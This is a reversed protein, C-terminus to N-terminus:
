AFDQAMMEPLPVTSLPLGFRRNLATSITLGRVLDEPEATETHTTFPYAHVALNGDRIAQELKQRREPPQGEWLIQKMPWGSVTWVFQREKPQNRNKEIAELVRDAMETRYAHVVERAMTTYGIDFHTKYVIIVNQLGASTAATATAADASRLASGLVLPMLLTIALKMESDEDEEPRRRHHRQHRLWAAPRGAIKKRASRIAAEAGDPIQNQWWNMRESYCWVYEDSTTLAYYVNHEFWRLREQPTLYTSLYKEAPQRLRM